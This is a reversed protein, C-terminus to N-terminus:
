LLVICFMARLSLAIQFALNIYVAKPPSFRLNVLVKILSAGCGSIGPFVGEEVAIQNYKHNVM